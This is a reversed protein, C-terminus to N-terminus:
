ISLSIKDGISFIGLSAPIEDQDRLRLSNFKGYFNPIKTNVEESAIGWKGKQRKKREGM